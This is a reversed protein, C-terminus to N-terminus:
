IGLRGSVLVSGFRNRARSFTSFPVSKLVLGSSTKVDGGALSVVVLQYPAHSAKSQNSARKLIECAGELVQIPGAVDLLLVNEYAIMLVLRSHQAPPQSAALSCQPMFRPAFSM